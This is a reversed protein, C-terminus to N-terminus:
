LEPLSGTIRALAYDRFAAAGDATMETGATYANLASHIVDAYDEPLHELGWQGGERKSLLLNQEQCAIVRCLNLVFYAPNEMLGDQADMADSRISDLLASRPVLAFVEDVPKGYWAIGKAKAVSFHAALDPDTGCLRQCYGELDTRYANLHANSFHLEYPSPHVFNRCAFETVVSMEIGKEPAEPVHRLIARILSAKENLSLPEHVIALFDVDSNEWRFCGFAISGHIYIGTLKEGLIKTFDHTISNMLTQWPM